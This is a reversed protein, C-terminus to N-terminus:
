RKKNKYAYMNNRRMTVVTSINFNDAKGGKRNMYNISAKKRTLNVKFDGCRGAVEDM